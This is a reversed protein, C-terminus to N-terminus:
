GNWEVQRYAEPTYDRYNFRITLATIGAGLIAGLIGSFVEQFM